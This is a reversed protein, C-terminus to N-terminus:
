QYYVDFCVATIKKRLVPDGSFEPFRSFSDYIHCKFTCHIQMLKNEQKQQQAYQLAHKNLAYM